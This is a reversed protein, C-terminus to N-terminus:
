PRAGPGLRLVWFGDVEELRLDRQSLSAALRGANGFFHVVVQAGTRSVENVEVTKVEPAAELRARVSAWEGVAKVPVRVAITGETGFVLLTDRKWREEMGRSIEEVARGLLAVVSEGADGRFGQVTTNQGSPGFRKLVVDISPTRSGIELRLNAEAVLIDEVGYREAIASLRSQDGAVAQTAGILSVDTLDGNPLVLPTLTDRGRVVAWAERWPNPEDWLIQAGAANYIPLVLAPRAATETFPIGARRLLTRVADTSFSVTLNALYRTSSTRENRVEISYVLTDVISADPVPLQSHHERPTIRALLRGLADSMGESLAIARAASADAATTDVSVNEVVFLAAQAIVPAPHLFMLFGALALWTGRPVRTGRGGSM